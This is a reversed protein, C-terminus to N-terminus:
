AKMSKKLCSSPKDIGSNSVKTVTFHISTHDINHSLGILLRYYSHFEVREQEILVSNEGLNRARDRGGAALPDPCRAAVM